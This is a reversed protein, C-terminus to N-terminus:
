GFRKDFGPMLFAIIFFLISLKIVLKQETEKERMRMRRELLEPDKRILYTLVFIMPIILIALYAWAQWYNFTGAPLFLMAGLAAIFLVVRVFVTRALKSPHSSPDRRNSNM